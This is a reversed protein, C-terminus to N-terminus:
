RQQLDSEERGQLAFSADVNGIARFFVRHRGKRFLLVEVLSINAISRAKSSAAPAVGIEASFLASLFHRCHAEIWWVEM